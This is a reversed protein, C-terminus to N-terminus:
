LLSVVDPVALRYVRRDVLVFIQSGRATIRDIELIDGRDDAMRFSLRHQIKGNDDVQFLLFTERDHYGGRFLVYDQWIAFGQSGHVPSRWVGDIKEGRMRVLPFDTYYCCWTETDSVVNLAYGDAPSYYGDPPEFEYLREGERNWLVFGRAGIPPKWGFNGFVGEDYYCAWIRGDRTAQIEKIGDGLLFERKLLGDLTFAKANRDFAGDAFHRARAVVLLLEDPLLMQVHHFNWHQERVEYRMGESGDYRLVRYDHPQDTWLIVRRANYIDGIHYDAPSNVALVHLDGTPRVSFTILDFGALYDDLVLWPRVELVHVETSDYQSTQM